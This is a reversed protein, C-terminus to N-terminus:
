QRLMDDGDGEATSRSEVMGNLKDTDNSSSSMSGVNHNITSNGFLFCLVIAVGDHVISDDAHFNM